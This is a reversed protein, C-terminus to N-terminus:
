TACGRVLSIDEAARNPVQKAWRSDAMEAAAELYDRQGLAAILKVFKSFRPGGLNFIMDVMALQVDEPQNWFDPVLNVADNTATDLDPAFLSDIHADTLSCTRACLADYDVELAEIRERATAEQLNFGIGVTLIGESDTYAQKRRGEHEAIYNSAREKDM